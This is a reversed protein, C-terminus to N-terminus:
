QSAILVYDRRSLSKLSEIYMQIKTDKPQVFITLHYFHM